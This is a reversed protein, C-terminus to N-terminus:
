EARRRQIRWYREDQTRFEQCPTQDDVCILDSSVGNLVLRFKDRQDQFVQPTGRDDRQIEREIYATGLTWGLGVGPTQPNMGERTEDVIGSHYTLSLNPGLGGRGGPIDLPYTWQVAGTFLDVQADSVTPQWPEAYDGGMDNTTALAVAFIGPAHAPAQLHWVGDEFARQTPLKQWILNATDYYFLFTLQQSLTDEPMTGDPLAVNVVTAAPTSGVDAVEIAYGLNYPLFQPLTLVETYTLENHPSTINEPATKLTTITNTTPRPRSHAAPV